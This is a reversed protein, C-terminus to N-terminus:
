KCLMWYKSLRLIDIGAEIPLFGHRAKEDLSMM